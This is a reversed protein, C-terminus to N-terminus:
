SIAAIRAKPRPRQDQTENPRFACRRAHSPKFHYTLDGGDHNRSEDLDERQASDEKPKEQDDEKGVEPPLRSGLMTESASIVTSSWQLPEEPM